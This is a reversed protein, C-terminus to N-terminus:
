RVNGQKHEQEARAEARRRFFTRESMGLEIWPKTARLTKDRNELRPRGGGSKKLPDLTKRGSAKKIGRSGDIVKPKEVKGSSPRCLHSIGVLALNAGCNACRETMFGDGKRGWGCVGYSVM